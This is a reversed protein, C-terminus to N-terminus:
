SITRTVLLHARQTECWPQVTGTYWTYHAEGHFKFDRLGYHQLVTQGNLWVPDGKPGSFQNVMLAGWAFRIFDIYSFWFWYAPMTNFDMIFGGFFLCFTVYVPLLANAVDLNPSIAAIFYALAIGIYLQILYILWFLAWSNQFGIAFYTATSFILSSITALILEDMMKAILYTMVTYLGDARERVYLTRELVLSPVYSAAGYAPIVCWMFLIASQNIYNQSQFKNGIGWFLTWMLTSMVFKDGVRPGLFEGDQYNKRTRYKLMTRLGWWMPTATEQQAALEAELHKPLPTTDAMFGDLQAMNSAALSSGAYADALVASTGERDALTIIDVLWEAPNADAGSKGGHPWHELAYGVPQTGQRGFYVVRGRTLMMLGDFLGFAYATPSHITACITVGEGVLKAVVAMTENATFSDLGSTPEDLFLVRPNTILALGINVRKSQGGSIGKAAASGIKVDRCPNLALAELVADVASKKSEASEEMPRKLDATYALMEEVTLIPLLTDFQEVYGTFRRLFAKSPKTGGFLITGSSEGVTKRGALVDLLTTKGSGSPGMLAVMEGPQFYGSVDKLLWAKEGKVTNSPM